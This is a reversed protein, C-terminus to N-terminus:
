KVGVFIQAGHYKADAIYNMNLTNKAGTNCGGICNGCGNCEPQAVGIHNVPSTGFNVCLPAKYIFDNLEKDELHKFMEDLDEIDTVGKQLTKAADRLRHHRKPDKPYPAPRLMAEAAAGGQALATLDLRFDRPWARDSFVDTIPQMWVGANILSSGGLGCGKLISAEDTLILDFLEDGDGSYDHGQRKVKTMKAADEFTEPFHGPLLERGRELLCVSQGCRAARCAAIAGGYGSGVVIVDYHDRVSTNDEESFQYFLQQLFHYSINDM